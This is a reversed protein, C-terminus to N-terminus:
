GATGNTFSIGMWMNPYYKRPRRQPVSSCIIFSSQIPKNLPWYGNMCRL